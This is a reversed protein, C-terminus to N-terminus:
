EPHPDVVAHFVMAGGQLRSVTVSRVPDGTGAFRVRGTAGEFDTVAALGDRVADADFSGRSSIVELLLNVADYTMAATARPMERYAARYDEIFRRAPEAPYASNWQHTLYAGDAAPIEAMRAADWVDSGLLVADIGLERAQRAQVSDHMTFNPLFLVDPSERGIRALQDVYDIPQDSTFTEVTVVRGGLSEFDRQFLRALDRSYARSVDYLVAAREAKLEDRSFRALVAGQVDDLFALRFVYRKGATTERNSSMPSIMPVRAAEALASVPIAHRSLQPGVLAIVHEHNILARAAGAAAAPRDEHTRVVVNVRYARGDVEVGGRANWQDAALRAAEITPEGSAAALRGTLALVGIRLEAGAPSTSGDGCAGGLALLVLM